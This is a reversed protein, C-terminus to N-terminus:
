VKFMHSDPGLYTKPRPPVTFDKGSRNIVEGYFLHQIDLVPSNFRIKDCVKKAINKM